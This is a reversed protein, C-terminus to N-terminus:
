WKKLGANGNQERVWGGEGYLLPPMMSEGERMYETNSVRQNSFSLFTPKETMCICIKMERYSLQFLM